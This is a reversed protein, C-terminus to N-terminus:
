VKPLPWIQAVPVKSLMEAHPELPVMAIGRKGSKLHKYIKEAQWWYLADGSPVNLGKKRDLQSQHQDREMTWGPKRDISVALDVDGVHTAKPDLYSGFLLVRKVEYLFSPDTNVEVVRSLFGDLIETAKDRAIPAAASANILRRALNSIEYHGEEESKEIYGEQLLIDFIRKGEEPSVELLEEVTEPDIFQYIKRFMNRIKIAPIGAILQGKEIRM